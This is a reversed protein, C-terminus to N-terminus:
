DDWEKEKWLIKGGKKAIKYEFEHEQGRITANFSVEWVSQGNFRDSEVDIDWFHKANWKSSAHNKAKKLATSESIRKGTAAKPVNLSGTVSSYSGTGRRKIGKVTIIYNKGRKFNKVTFKVEDNDRWVNKVSYKKGSTDKVIIKSNRYQVKGHFDVEVRGNGNYEIDEIYPAAAFTSLQGGILMAITMACTVALRMLRKKM